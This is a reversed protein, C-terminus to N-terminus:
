WWWYYDYPSYGPLSQETVLVLDAARHVSIGRDSIAYIYDGMFITRRIDRYYWYTEPDADFYASHDIVGFLDLGAFYDVSILQLTSTYDYEWYGDATEWYRYASLPIALLKKPQWYQFAKHEYMAESWGWGDDMVLEQVDQLAPATPDNVNFLSIQTRWNAGTEDGGVGITLLRKELTDAEMKEIPHIYSSFGFVELEGLEVPDTPDTLDFVFLPDVQQFTVMYARNAVFRASFIREGEAIDGVHGVTALEGASEGLVFIHNTSPPPTEEWWRNWRNVTTAVRLYGQHEGLSFQNHLVGDVRGSGIYSSTGPTTIDFAHINTQEDWETFWWFWWWDWAPEAVYLRDQSAYITPWNSLIHDADIASAGEAALDLSIISTIGRGASDLPRYFSRCTNEMFGLPTLTGSPRREYAMPLLDSLDLALIRARAAAKLAKIDSPDEYYWWWWDDLGPVYMYSWAGLRVSSDVLRATQYWGEFFLERELRPATTNSVDLITLKSLYSSRWYWGGDETPEGVLDRLPHGEPLSYVDIQSFVVVRHSDKHILMQYPWGEVEVASEPVLDGFEPVGFIHLRNGNITYVHYGDTKTFDAEDVGQEQNNTGSYDVGEQRGGESAPANSGDEAGAVPGWYGGWEAMQEIRADLESLLVEKLDAELSVCSEYQVLATRHQVHTEYAGDECALALPSLVLPLLRSLRRPNRM